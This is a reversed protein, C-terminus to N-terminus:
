TGPMISHVPIFTLVLGSSQGEHIIYDQKYRVSCAFARSDHSQSKGPPHDHVLLRGKM